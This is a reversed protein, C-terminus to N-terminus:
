KITSDNIEDEDEVSYGDINDALQAQQPIMSTSNDNADTIKSHNLSFPLKPTAAREPRPYFLDEHSNNGSRLEFDMMGRMREIASHDDSNDVGQM